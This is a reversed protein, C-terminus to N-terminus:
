TRMFGYLVEPNRVLILDQTAKDPAWRLNLDFLKADDPMVNARPHPWDSGWIMRDHAARVLAKAVTVADSYSPASAKFISYPASLKIWTRGKDILRRVVGFAPEEISGVRAFHDFVLVSPLESLLAEATLLYDKAMINFQIHWGLDAVRKSLTKLVHPPPAHRLRVGRVGKRDLRRLETDTVNEDVVAVGRASKGFQELAALTVENNTGYSSQTVVVNRTTGIRKQLLRYDEVTAHIRVEEGPAPAVGKDYIHHHCDCANLPAKLEPAETGSSFPIQKVDM